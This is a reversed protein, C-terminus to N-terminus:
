ERFSAMAPEPGCGERCFREGKNTVLIRGGDQAQLRMPSGPLPVVIGKSGYAPDVRGDRLIRFVRSGYKYPSYGAAVISGGAGAIAAEAVFPLHVVGRGGYGTVIRGAENLRLDFSGHGESSGIADFSGDTRPVIAALSPFEGYSNLRRASQAVTRDFRQDDEGRPSVRELYVQRPGCCGSGGLLIGGRPTIAAARIPYPHPVVLGVSGNQGYGRDVKGDPLLRTLVVRSAAGEKGHRTLAVTADVLIRNRPAIFLRLGPYSCRCHFTAVGARGFSPDPKGDTELRRVTVTQGHATGILARGAADASVTPLSKPPLTVTGDGGFGRDIAGGRGYRTLVQQKCSKQGCDVEEGFVYAAGDPAAAFGHVWLRSSNNGPLPAKLKVVGGQGYSLDLGPRRNAASAGVALAGVLVLLAVLAWIRRGRM